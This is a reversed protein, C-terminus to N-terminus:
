HGVGYPSTLIPSPQEVGSPLKDDAQKGPHGDLATYPSTLIQAAHNREMQNDTLQQFHVTAPAGAASSTSPSGGRIVYGAASALLLAALLAFALAVIRVPVYQVTKQAQV